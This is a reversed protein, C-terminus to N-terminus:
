KWDDQFFLAADFVNGQFAENGKTYTLNTPLCGGTQTTPCAAAIQAFTQGATVGNWTDVFASVSPFTFSGNFNGNTSQAERNDRMWTGFKIAQKGKTTTTINQLEFHDSHSNSFQGGNGGGSFAGPVGLSPATSAPTTSTNARRYEFRTENVVHDNIIQSDSLQVTNENSFSNSAVSPLSTSGRLSDTM